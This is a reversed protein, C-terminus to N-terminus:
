SGSPRWPGEIELDGDMCHNRITQALLRRVNGLQRRKEFFVRLEGSMIDPDSTTGYGLRRMSYHLDEAFNRNCHIDEARKGVFRILLTTTMCALAPGPVALTLDETFAESLLASLTLQEGMYLAISAPTM